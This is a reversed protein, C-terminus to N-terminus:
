REHARGDLDVGSTTDVVGAGREGAAAELVSIIESVSSGKELYSDAGLALTEDALVSGGFGSFVIIRADPVIERLEPLAEIGTRIPMALDLLVIAPQLRAAESIAENGNGAEGAFRVGKAMEVIEVLLRRIMPEDDCILVTADSDRDASGGM